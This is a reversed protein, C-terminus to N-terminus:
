PRLRLVLQQQRLHSRARAPAKSLAPPLAALPSEKTAALTIVTAAAIERDGPLSPSGGNRFDLWLSVGAADVTWLCLAAPQTEVGAMFTRESPAHYAAFYWPMGREPQQFRWQLDGYGREWHDGLFLTDDAFSAEWRLLV